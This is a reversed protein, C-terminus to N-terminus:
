QSWYIRNLPRNPRWMVTVMGVVVDVDLDEGGRCSERPDLLVIVNSLMSVKLTM